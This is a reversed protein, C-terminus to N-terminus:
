FLDQIAIIIFRTLSKKIKAKMINLLDKKITAATIVLDLIANKLEQNGLAM